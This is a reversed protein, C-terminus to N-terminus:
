DAGGAVSRLDAAHRQRSHAAPDTSEATFTDTSFGLVTGQRQVWRSVDLWGTGAINVRFRLNSPWPLYALPSTM